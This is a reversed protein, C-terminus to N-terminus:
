NKYKILKQKRKRPRPLRPVDSTRMNSSEMSYSFTMQYGNGHTSGSDWEMTKYEYIGKGQDHIFKGSSGQIKGKVDQNLLYSPILQKPDFSM